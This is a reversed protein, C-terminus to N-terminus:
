RQSWARAMCGRRKKDTDPAPFMRADRKLASKGFHADHITRTSKIYATQSFVPRSLAADSAADSAALNDGCGAVVVLVSLYRM